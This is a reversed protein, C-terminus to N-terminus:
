FHAALRQKLLLALNEAEFYVNEMKYYYHAYFPIIRVIMYLPDKSGEHYYRKWLSRWLKQKILQNEVIEAKGGIMFGEANQPLCYYASVMPNAKIHSIKPSNSDTNFYVRGGNFDGELDGLLDNYETQNWMNLLARVQPRGQRDITGLYFVKTKRQLAQGKKWAEEMTLGSM